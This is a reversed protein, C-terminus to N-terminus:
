ENADKFCRNFRKRGDIPQLWPLGLRKLIIPPWVGTELYSAPNQTLSILNKLRSVMSIGSETDFATYEFIGFNELHYLNSFFDIEEKTPKFVMRAHKEAFWKAEPISAPRSGYSETLSSFLKKFVEQLPNILENYLKREEPLDLVTVLVGDHSSREAYIIEEGSSSKPEYSQNSFYGNASGHSAGLLMEFLSRNNNFVHIYPTHAPHDSFLIGKKRNKESLESPSLLGIYFGNVAIKKDLSHFINNQISGKWGVDVLTLGETKLNVPFSQLYATLYKKQESRRQEFITLFQDSALLAEFDPHNKLDFQRATSELSLSQGISDVQGQAFNLSLLFEEISLDRYQNFLRDFSEEEIPKLSAIFTSKRSVVLYHAKIVQKGFLIKQYHEFLLKLFEGEKSCFFVNKAGSATIENFLRHTFLWLSVGMEPFFEASNNSLAIEFQSKNLESGRQNEWEKEWSEYHRRISSTDLHYAKMGLSNPVEFDSHRNDGIMVLKSLTCGITDAALHYLSGSSKLKLYDCSIFINTFYKNLDHFALIQSFYKLPVYFDSLLYVPIGKENLWKVLSTMEPVPAQVLKEVAIEISAFLDIFVTESVSLNTEALRSLLGHLEAGLSDLSFETEGCEDLNKNCLKVELDRRIEYIASGSIQLQLLESLRDAAIRKTYEPSISRNILTDFYDFCVAQFDTSENEVLLRIDKAIKEATLGAMISM